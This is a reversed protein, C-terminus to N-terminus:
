IAQLRIALFHLVPRRLGGRKSSTSVPDTTFFTTNSNSKSASGGSAEAAVDGRAGAGYAPLQPRGAVWGIQNSKPWVYRSGTKPRGPMTMPV